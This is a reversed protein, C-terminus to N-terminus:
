YLLYPAEILMLAEFLHPNLIIFCISYTGADNLLAIALEIKPDSSRPLSLIEDFGISLIENRIQEFMTDTERRTPAPNLNVGLIKLASLTDNFAEQFCGRLWFNRSRRQLMM